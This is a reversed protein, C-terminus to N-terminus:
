TSPSTRLSRVVPAWRDRAHSLYAREDPEPLSGLLWDPLVDTPDVDFGALRELEAAVALVISKAEDTMTM